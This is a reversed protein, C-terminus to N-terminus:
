TLSATARSVNCASRSHYPNNRYGDEIGILFNALKHEDLLLTSVIGERKLLYFAITSLPRCDTAEDLAFMNFTWADVNQLLSAVQLMLSFATPWIFPPSDFSRCSM